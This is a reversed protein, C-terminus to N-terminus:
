CFCRKPLAPVTLDSRESATYACQKSGWTAGLNVEKHVRQVHVGIHQLVTRGDHVFFRGQWPTSALHMAQFLATTALLPYLFRYHMTLPMLVFVLSLM